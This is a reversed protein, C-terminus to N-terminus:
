WAITQDRQRTVPFLFKLTALLLSQTLWRQISIDLGAPSQFVEQLIDM